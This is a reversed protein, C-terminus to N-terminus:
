RLYIMEYEDELVLKGISQDKVIVGDKIFICRTCIKEIWDLIHSTVIVIGGKATHESLDHKLQLIGATDVGNTPEDLIILETDGLLAMVISLKRKMGLSLNNVLTNRKDYLDYAQLYGDITEHYKGDFKVRCIFDLIEYVTMKDYFSLDEQLYGIQKKCAPELASVGNLTVEGESIKTLGSVARVLTSKGVGNPGIFAVIEGEEITVSIDRIGCNNEYLKTIHNIELRNGM